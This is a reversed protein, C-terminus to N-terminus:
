VTAQVQITSSSTERRQKYKQYVLVIISILLSGILGAMCFLSQKKWRTADDYAFAIEGFAGVVWFVLNIVLLTRLAWLGVRKGVPPQAKLEDLEEDDFTTPPSNKFCVARLKTAAPACCCCCPCLGAFVFAVIAALSFAVNFIIITYWVGSFVFIEASGDDQQWSMNYATTPLLQSVDAPFTPPVPVRGTPVIEFVVDGPIFVTESEASLEYLIGMRGDLLRHLSSYSVGGQDELVILKKWSKGDDDSEWVTMLTRAVSDNPGGVGSYLLTENSEQMISGECGVLPNPLETKEFNAWTVGGDVSRAQIRNGYITRSNCLISGDSLEVVQNENGAIGRFFGFFGNPVDKSQKWTEGHDDSYLMFVTTVLGNDYFPFTSYYGPIVLRGYTPDTVDRQLLQIGGPPGFGVWTWAKNENETLRKPENWTEGDDDSFTLWMESNGRNFPMFIRGTLQDQVLAMNGAVTHQGYRGPIVLTLNSWTVGDDTSTKMVLDTVDWDMCEGTNTGKPADAPGRAETFALLKGSRTTLLYPIKYCDYEEDKKFVSVGNAQAVLMLVVVLVTKWM